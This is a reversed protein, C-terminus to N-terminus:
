RSVSGGVSQQCGPLDSCDIYRASRWRAHRNGLQRSPRLLFDYPAGGAVARDVHEFGHTEVRGGPEFVTISRLHPYEAVVRGLNDWMGTIIRGIEIESLEPFARKINLRAHKSVGLFPGIYRALAGGLTSARDLPLAEFAAFLSAAGWAELRDAFRSM